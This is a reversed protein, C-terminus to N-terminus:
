AELYKNKIREWYSILNPHAKVMDAHPSELGEPQMQAVYAAAACDYRSITDGFLYPKDGLVVSLAEVDKNAFAYIKEAEMRGIGHGQLDRKVSRQIVAFLPRRLLSPIEGMFTERIKESNPKQMWRSYVISWYLNSDLGRVLLQGIANQETNLKDNTISYTQELYDLIRESDAITIGKHELVPIKKYPTKRPDGSKLDFNIDHIRMFLILKLVFPSPDPLGFAPAFGFLTPKDNM